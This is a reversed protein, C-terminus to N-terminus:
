TQGLARMAIQGLFRHYEIFIRVLLWKGTPVPWVQLMMGPPLASRLLWEARPMHYESTVLLLSRIKRREAWDVTMSVNERTNHAHDISVCCTRPLQSGTLGRLREEDSGEWVGSILLLPATSSDLLRFAVAVRAMEPGTFVVVADVKPAQRVAAHSTVWYTAGPITTSFALLGVAWFAIALGLLRDFRLTRLL